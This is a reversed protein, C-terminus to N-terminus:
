RVYSIGKLYKIRSPWIIARSIDDAMINVPASNRHPNM